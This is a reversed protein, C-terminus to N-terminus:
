TNAVMVHCARSITIANRLNRNRQESSYKIVSRVAYKSCKVTCGLRCLLDRGLLNVLSNAALLFAHHAELPGCEVTLNETTPIKEVVGTIGVM